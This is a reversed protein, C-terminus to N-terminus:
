EQRMLDWRQWKFFWMEEDAIFSDQTPDNKDLTHYIHVAPTM